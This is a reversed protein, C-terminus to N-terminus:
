RSCHSFAKREVPLKGKKNCCQENQYKEDQYFFLHALIDLLNLSLEREIVILNYEVAM